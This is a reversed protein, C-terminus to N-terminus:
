KDHISVAKTTHLAPSSTEILKKGQQEIFYVSLGKKQAVAEGDKKGLCLMATAWADSFRPDEAFVTASVLDHTVPAGTRPDFIHSYRKGNKDYYHRYTGSTNISVGKPDKIEVVKDISMDGPVPRVIAIRWSGGDARHGKVYMDGGMEVIYNTIGYQELVGALRYATYGEGMSSLDVAIKAIRKRVRHDKIDLELKDFGVDERTRAIQEPSPIRFSDKRFGWLDYLPKVTPDYCGNSAHYVSDALQLLGMVDSPLEQWDTSLTHNFRQLDSDDRYTSIKQDIDTFTAKIAAEVKDSDVPNACWWTIHYSTGQARGEIKQLKPARNCGATSVLLAGIVIVLIKKM